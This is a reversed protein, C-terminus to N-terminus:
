CCTRERNIIEALNKANSRFCQYAEESSLVELESVKEYYGTSLKFTSTIEKKDLLFLALESEPYVHEIPSSNLENSMVETIRQLHYVVADLKAFEPYKSLDPIMNIFRATNDVYYRELIESSTTM